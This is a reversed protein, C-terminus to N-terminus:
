SGSKSKSKCSVCYVSEPRIALRDADIERGCTLCIGYLGEELRHLARGVDELNKMVTDLIGLAETREATAAAADAFGDGFELDTRLEGTEDSGLEALRELLRGRAELLLRQADPYTPTTM